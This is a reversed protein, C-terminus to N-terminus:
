DSLDRFRGRRVKAVALAQLVESSTLAALGGRYDQGRASGTFGCDTAPHLYVESLGSPLAGNLGAVRRIDM